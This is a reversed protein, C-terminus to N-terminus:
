PSPSPGELGAPGMEVNFAFVAIQLLPSDLVDELSPEQNPFYTDKLKTFFAIRAERTEVGTQGLHTLFSLAKSKNEEGHLGKREEVFRAFMQPDAIMDEFLALGTPTLFAGPGPDEKYVREEEDSEEAADLYRGYAEFAGAEAEPDGAASALNELM